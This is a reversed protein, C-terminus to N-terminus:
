RLEHDSNAGQERQPPRSTLRVRAQMCAEYEDFLDDRVEGEPLALEASMAGGEGGVVSPLM